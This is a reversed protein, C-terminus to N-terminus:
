RIFMKNLIPNSMQNIYSNFYWNKMVNKKRQFELQQYYIIIFYYHIIFYYLLSYRFIQVAFFVKREELYPVFEFM